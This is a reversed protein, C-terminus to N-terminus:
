SIEILKKKDEAKKFEVVLIGDEIKAKVDKSSKSYREPIIFRRSISKTVGHIEKEGKILLSDSEIELSLDSKNFGPLDLILKNEQVTYDRNLIGDKFIDIATLPFMNNKM